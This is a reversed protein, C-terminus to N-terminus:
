GKEREKLYFIRVLEDLVSATKKVNVELQRIRIELEEVKDKMRVMEQMNDLAINSASYEEPDGM